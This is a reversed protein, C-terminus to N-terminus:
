VHRQGLSSSGDQGFGTRDGGRQAHQDDQLQDHQSRKVGLYWRMRGRLNRKKRNSREQGHGERGCGSGQNDTGDRAPSLRSAASIAMSDKPGWFYRSGCNGSIQGATRVACIATM